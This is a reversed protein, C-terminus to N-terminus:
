PEFFYLTRRPEWRTPRRLLKRSQEWLYTAIAAKAPSDGCNLAATQTLKIVFRNYRRCLDDQAGAPGRVDLNGCNFGDGKGQRLLLKMQETKTQVEALPTAYIQATQAQAQDIMLELERAYARLEPHESQQAALYRKTESFFGAYEDVRGRIGQIFEYLHTALNVGITPKEEQKIKSLRTTTACVPRDYMFEDPTSYKLKRLQNADFDFLAAARDRGLAQAAVEVPSLLDAAAPELFYLLAQGQPVFTKDFHFLTRTWRFLLPLPELGRVLRGVDQNQRM